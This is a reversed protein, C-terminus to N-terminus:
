GFRTVVTWIMNTGAPNLQDAFMIVESSGAFSILNGIEPTFGDPAELIYEWDGIPVGDSDTAKSRQTRVASLTTPTVVGNSATQTVTMSAGFQRILGTATEKLTAYFDAM